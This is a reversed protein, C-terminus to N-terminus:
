VLSMSKTQFPQITGSHRSRLSQSLAERRTWTHLYKDWPPSASAKIEETWNMTPFKCRTFPIETHDFSLASSTLSRISFPNFSIFSPSPTTIKVSIKPPVAVLRLRDKKSSSFPQLRLRPSHAWAILGKLNDFRSITLLSRYAQLSTLAYSCWKPTIPASIDKVDQGRGPLPHFLQNLIFLSIILVIRNM